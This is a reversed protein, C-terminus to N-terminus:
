VSGFVGWVGGFCVYVGLCMWFVNVGLACKYVDLFVVCVALVYKYVGLCVWLVNLCGVYRRFM